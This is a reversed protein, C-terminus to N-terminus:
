IGREPKDMGNVSGAQVTIEGVARTRVRPCNVFPELHSFPCEGKHCFKLCGKVRAYTRTRSSRSQEGSLRIWQSPTAPFLLFRFMKGCWATFKWIRQADELQEQRPLVAIVSRSRECRERRDKTSGPWLAKRIDLM